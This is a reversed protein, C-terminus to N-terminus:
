KEHGLWLRTLQGIYKWYFLRNHGWITVLIHPIDLIQEEREITKNDVELDPLTLM